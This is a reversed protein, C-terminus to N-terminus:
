HKITGPKSRIPIQRGRSQAQKPMPMTVELLGNEFSAQIADANVGEPLAISRQFAGYSRECRYVGGKKHEHEHRREGSITLVDSEVQIHVDQERLGPLDAHVVLQGDREFIDVRPEWTSEGQWSSTLPSFSPGFGFDGFLRDMDNMFRRIFSFPSGELRALESPGRSRQIEGGTREQTREPRPQNTTQMPETKNADAM